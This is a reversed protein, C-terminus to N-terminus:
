SVLWGAPTYVVRGRLRTIPDIPLRTNQYDADMGTMRVTLIVDKVEASVALLVATFVLVSGILPGV